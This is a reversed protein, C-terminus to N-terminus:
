LANGPHGHMCCHVLSRSYKGRCDIGDGNFSSNCMCIFYGDNNICKAHAGCQTDLSCSVARKLTFKVQDYDNSDRGVTTPSDIWGREDGHNGTYSEGNQFLYHRLESHKIIFNGGIQPIINWYGRNYYNADSGVARYSSGLFLLRGTVINRIFYRKNSERSIRWFARNEYNADSGVVGPSYLWGGEGGIVTM